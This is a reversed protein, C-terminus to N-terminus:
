NIKFIQDNRLNRKRHSTEKKSIRRYPTLLEPPSNGEAFVLLIESNEYHYDPPTNDENRDDAKM